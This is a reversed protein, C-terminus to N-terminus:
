HFENILRILEIRGSITLFDIPKQHNRPSYFNIRKLENLILFLIQPRNRVSWLQSLSIPLNVFFLHGHGCLSLVALSSFSNGQYAINVKEFIM